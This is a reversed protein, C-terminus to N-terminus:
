NDIFLDLIQISLLMVIAGLLPMVTCFLGFWALLICTTGVQGNVLGYFGYKLTAVASVAASHLWLVSIFGLVSAAALLITLANTMRRAPFPKVEHISSAEDDTTEHWGPFM